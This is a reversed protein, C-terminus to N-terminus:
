GTLSSWASDTRAQRAKQAVSLLAMDRLWSERASAEMYQAAEESLQRGLELAGALVLHLERGTPDGNAVKELSALTALLKEGFAHPWDGTQAASWLNGLVAAFVYTDEVTRFPKLYDLYGDGPLLEAVEVNKLQLEAHLIEPVFPTPPMPQLHVGATKAEVLALRLRNRGNEDLGTSAVVLLLEAELGGTVWKKKGDLRWSDDVQRLTTHIARPHACGEETACLCVIRSAPLSPVLRHLAARYGALFAAGVSTAAAGGNAAAGFSPSPFLRDLV